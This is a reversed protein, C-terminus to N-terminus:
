ASMVAKVLPELLKAGDRNGLAPDTAREPHPMMGIVNRKENCIGAIFASSGNPDAKPDLKGEANCYRFLIRDEEKLRDLDVKPAYYRGEKHAIPIRLLQGKQVDETLFSDTSDVRMLINKCVFRQGENMLLTGPLLQAECLIQFGNCIGLVLGGKSAHKVVEEMIPSFRAIAGGRLYDGYSFGGPLVILESGQLDRDKHWLSRVEAGLVESLAYRIDEDCNSGPFTVVGCKM